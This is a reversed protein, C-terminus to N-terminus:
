TGAAMISKAEPFLAGSLVCLTCGHQSLLSILTINRSLCFACTAVGCGVAKDQHSIRPILPNDPAKGWLPAQFSVM